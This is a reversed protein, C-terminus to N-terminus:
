MDARSSNDISSITVAIEENGDQDIRRSLDAGLMQLIEPLMDEWPTDDEPREMTGALNVIIEVSDGKRVGTISIRGVPKLLELAPWVICFIAFQLLSPDNFIAPLDEDFSSILEVQKQRAFRRLLYIKEQLVDTVSLSSLSQDMRHSFSSLFRCMEAAQAIRENIGSIIKKYRESNASQGPEELLLLDEILGNLEKIIALHNKFEHSLGAMLKGVFALQMRRLRDKKPSKM